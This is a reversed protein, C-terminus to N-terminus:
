FQISTQKLEEIRRQLYLTFYGEYKTWLDPSRWDNGTVQGRCTPAGCACTFEDYSASDTMAYDYCIEEGPAIDRLAVVMNCGQIGANPECCHNVRDGPGLRDPVLYLQEDIQVSLSILESPLQQFISEEVVTGGWAAILAGAVVPRVAFIGYRGKGNVPRAECLPSLYSSPLDDM